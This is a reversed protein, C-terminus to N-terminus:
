WTSPKESWRFEIFSGDEQMYYMMEQMAVFFMLSTCTCTDINCVYVFQMSRGSLDIEFYHSGSVLLECIQICTYVFWKFNDVGKTILVCSKGKTTKCCHSAIPIINNTEIVFIVSTGKCWVILLSILYLYCSCWSECGHFVSLNSEGINLTYVVRDVQENSITSLTRLTKLMQLNIAFNFM